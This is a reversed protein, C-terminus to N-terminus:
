NRQAIRLGEETLELYATFTFMEGGGLDIPEEDPIFVLGKRILSMWVRRGPIPFGWLDNTTKKPLDDAAILARGYLAQIGYIEAESLLVNFEM